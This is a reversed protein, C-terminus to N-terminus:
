KAVTFVFTAREEFTATGDAKEQSKMDKLTTDLKEVAGSYTWVKDVRKTFTGIDTQVPGDVSVIDEILLPKMESMESELARVQACLEAYRKFLKEHKLKM